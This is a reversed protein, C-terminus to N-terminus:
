EAKPYGPLTAVSEREMIQLPITIDRKALGRVKVAEIIIKVAEEGKKKVDQRVTTLSPNCTQALYLDDFGIISID